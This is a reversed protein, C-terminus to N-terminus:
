AAAAARDVAFAAALAPPDDTVIAAVGADLLRRATGAANVTYACVPARAAAVAAADCISAALHLAACGLRGARRAARPADDDALLAIPVHGRFPRIAAPDFSSILVPPGRRARRLTRAVADATRVAVGSRRDTKIEINLGLGLGAAADIAADLRPPRRRPLRAAPRGALRGRGPGTRDFTADHM